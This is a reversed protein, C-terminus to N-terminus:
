KGSLELDLANMVKHLNNAGIMSWRGHYIMASVRKSIGTELHMHHPCAWRAQAASAIQQPIIETSM